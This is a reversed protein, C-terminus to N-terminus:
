RQEWQVLWSFFIHSSDRLLARDHTRFGPDDFGADWNREMVVLTDPGFCRLRSTGNLRWTTAMPIASNVHLRYVGIPFGFRMLAPTVIADSYPNTVMVAGLHGLSM